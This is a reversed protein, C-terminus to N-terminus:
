RICGREPKRELPLEGGGRLWPVQRRGAHVQHPHVFRDQALPQAYIYNEVRNLYAGLSFDLNGATKRLAVEYNRSTKKHYPANNHLGGCTMPDPLLGCEYTSTAMHPGRAYMEQAHPLRQSRAALLTLTLDPALTWIASGSFSTATDKFEPRGRPDQQPTHKLWEQRGGLEFHWQENLQYHEILFVGTSVTDITPLFAETGQTSLRTDSHQVGLSVPLTEFPAHELELRSDYGKNTFTTAITNGELEDHRYDTHNARFRIHAIGPLPDSFEGRLDM